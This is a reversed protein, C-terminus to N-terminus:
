FLSLQAGPRRFLDRRLSLDRKGLNLRRLAIRFRAAIQEAYHGSGCHREGFRSVYDKGERTQRVLSMVRDARHPFETRLWEQFLPSVELPLRLLVYGADSAGAEAAAKLISELENDTLAPILPAAMVSVPISAAALKRIAEIRRLPTSARPEMRRALRHDLTTVSVAVRVLEREAMRALIDIDRLILASKTVLAVPHSTRELVELVARTIKREREVPQYADTNAGIMITAPEYGSRALEAELAEAANVKAVLKTEFDLGASWGWYAHSPRAYCYICGHECGRYPNISRDFGIDPSSNRAIITKVREERVETKFPPLDDLCDWGDDVAERREPEFRGTANSVAGRGRRREATVHEEGTACRAEKRVM